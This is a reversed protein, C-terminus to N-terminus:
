KALAAPGGPRMLKDFRDGRAAAKASTPKVKALPASLDIPKRLAAKLLDSVPATSLKELESRLRVLDKRAKELEAPNRNTKALEFRDLAADSARILDREATTLTHMM